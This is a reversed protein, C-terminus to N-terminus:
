RNRRERPPPPPLQWTSPRNKWAASMQLVFGGLCMVGAIAAVYKPADLTVGAILVGASLVIVLTGSVFRFV